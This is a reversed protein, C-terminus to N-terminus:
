RLDNVMNLSVIHGGDSGACRHEEHGPLYLSETHLHDEGSLSRILDESAVQVEVLSGVLLLQVTLSHSLYKDVYCM